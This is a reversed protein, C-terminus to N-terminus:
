ASYHHLSQELHADFDYYIIWKQGSNEWYISFPFYWCPTKISKLLECSPSFYCINKSEKLLSSWQFFVDRNETPYRNKRREGFGQGTKMPFLRTQYLILLMNPILLCFQALQHTDWCKINFNKKRSFVVQPGGCPNTLVCM